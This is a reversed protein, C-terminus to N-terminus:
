SLFDFFSGFVIVKVELLVRECSAAAAATVFGRGCGCLRLIGVGSARWVPCGCQGRSEGDVRLLVPCIDGGTLFNRIHLEFLPIGRTSPMVLNVDLDVAFDDCQGPIGTIPCMDPRM